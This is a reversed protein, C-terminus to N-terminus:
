AAIREAMKSEITKRVFRRTREVFAVTDALCSELLVGIGYNGTLDAAATLIKFESIRLHAFHSAKALVFLRRAVPNQIEALEKRFDEALAEQAPGGVKVPQEGLLKFCQDIQSLIKESVFARAELAGKVEPDQALQAIEKFVGTTRETNQRASSLLMVFVDRPNKTAM